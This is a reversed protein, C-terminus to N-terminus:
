EECSCWVFVPQLDSLVDWDIEGEGDDMEEDTSLGYPDEEEAVGVGVQGSGQGEGNGKEAVVGQDSRQDKDEKDEKGCM